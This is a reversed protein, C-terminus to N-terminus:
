SDGQRAAEHDRALWHQWPELYNRTAILFAVFARDVDALSFIMANPAALFQNARNALAGASDATINFGKPDVLCSLESGLQSCGDRAASSQELRSGRYANSLRSNDVAPM